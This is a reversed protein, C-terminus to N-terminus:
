GATTVVSVESEVAALLGELEVLIEHYKEQIFAHVTTNALLRQVYRCCVSLTLVETGYSEEVARANQFLAETEAVLKTRDEQPLKKTAGAKESEALMETRTGALLATAFRGTYMQSAVMLQAVEVQRVPKMKRLTGFAGSSVRRDRLIEVAETCLGNLLNRKRRITGVDVNLAKAIEDETNHKLARLIMQHEGVPSLYNVRRNYTYAEDDRAIICGVEEVKRRVLVDLRKQGDLVKYKERGLPFVILPEIIGVTAISAEIQKYKEHHRERADLPRSPTLQGVKLMIVQPRFSSKVPM